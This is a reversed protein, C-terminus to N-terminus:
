RIFRTLWRRVCARPMKQEEGNRIAVVVADGDVDVVLLPHSGSNLM